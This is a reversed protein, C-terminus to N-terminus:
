AESGTADKVVGAQRLEGVWDAETWREAIKGGEVRYIAIWSIELQRGAAPLGFYPRTPTGGATTRVAVRDGEAFIDAITIHWDPAGGRQEAAFQTVGARGPAQCPPLPHSVFDDAVVEEIVALDGGNLGEEIFRRGPGQHSGDPEYRWWAKEEATEPWFSSIL